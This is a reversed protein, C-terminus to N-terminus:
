NLAPESLTNVIEDFVANLKEFEKINGFRRRWAMFGKIADAVLRDHNDPDANAEEATTYITQKITSGAPKRTQIEFARVAKEPMEKYVVEFSRILNSAQLLRYKRAADSDDWNFFSHLISEPSSASELVAEPSLGQKRKIKMLESYAVKAEVDTKPTGKRWHVESVKM